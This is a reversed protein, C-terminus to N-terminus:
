LITAMHCFLSILTFLVSMYVPVCVNACVRVCVYIYIYIYVYNDTTIYPYTVISTAIIIIM